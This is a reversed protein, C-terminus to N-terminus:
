FPMVVRQLSCYLPLKACKFFFNFQCCFDWFHLVAQKLGYHDNARKLNIFFLAGFPWYLRCCSKMCSIVHEFQFYGEIAVTGFELEIVTEKGIGM